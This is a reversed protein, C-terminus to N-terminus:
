TLSRYLTLQLLSLLGNCCVLRSHQDKSWGLETEKTKSKLVHYTYRTPRAGNPAKPTSFEDNGRALSAEKWQPETCGNHSEHVIIYSLKLKESKFVELYAESIANTEHVVIEMSPRTLGRRYFVVEPRNRATPKWMKFREIMMGKLDIIKSQLHRRGTFHIEEPSEWAAQLRVSGPYHILTLDNAAVVAAVSCGSKSAGSDGYAIYAGVVMFPDTSIVGQTPHDFNKGGNMLNIKQMTGRPFRTMWSADTSGFRRGSAEFSEKTICTALAGIATHNFRLIEACIRRIDPGSQPGKDIIAVLVDPKEDYLRRLGKQDRSDPALLAKSDSISTYIAPIQELEEPRTKFVDQASGHLLQRLHVM